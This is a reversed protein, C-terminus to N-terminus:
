PLRASFPIKVRWRWGASMELNTRKPISMGWEPPFPIRRLGAWDETRGSGSRKQGVMLGKGSNGCQLWAHDAAQKLGREPDGTRM